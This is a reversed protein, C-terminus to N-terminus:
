GGNKQFILQLSYLLNHSFDTLYNLKVDIVNGKLFSRNKM